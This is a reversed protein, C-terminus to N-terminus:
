RQHIQKLPKEPEAQAEAPQAGNTKSLINHIYQNYCLTRSSACIDNLLLLVKRVTVQDVRLPVTSVSCAVAALQVLCQHDHPDYVAATVFM